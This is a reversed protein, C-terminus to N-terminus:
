TEDDRGRFYFGIIAGVIGGLISSVTTLVKLVDDIKGNLANRGVLLIVFLILVYGGLSIYALNTRTTERKIEVGSLASIPSVANAM